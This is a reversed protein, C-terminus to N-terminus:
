FIAQGKNNISIKNVDMRKFYNMTEPHCTFVIVQRKKAFEYLIGATKEARKPDFNVLVEDVIVPLPEAKKEYEEIFGLRLSVLLQERTGRSLQHIKKVAGRGDFVSVDREGLTVIIKKYRGGTIRSFYTISNKIVEPQREREYRGKVEALLKLAVKGALWSKYNDNLKQRESELGTMIEALESEGEIRSVENRKEGLETNKSNLEGSKMNIKEDLEVTQMEIDEKSNVKLFEIVKESRNLGIVTEINAVANRRAEILKIVKDEEEYKKRFDKTDTADVSKLLEKLKRDIAASESIARKLEKARVALNDKMKEKNGSQEQASQFENVIHNVILETNDEPEYYTLKDKLASVEVEFEKIFPIRQEAQKRRLEDRDNLTRKVQNIIRFIELVSDPTLDNELNLDTLYSKYNKDLEKEKEDTKLLQQKIKDSSGEKQLFRKGAVLILAILLFTIGFIFSASLFLAISVISCIISFIIAASNVNIGSGKIQLTKQQAELEKRFSKLEEFKEKFDIIRDNHAILDSFENISGETWKTGIRDLEQKILKNLNEIKGNDDKMDDRALTYKGLNAKLYEVKEANALLESNFSVTKIEEELEEIGKEEADGKKLVKIKEDLEQKKRETDKLQEMGDGPYNRLVPLAALENDYHVINVFSDYCRLYNHLRNSEAQYKKLEEIINKIDAELQKIALNLQRYRHLNDQIEGILEKRKEIEKLILPVVQKGRGRRTYIDDVQKQIGAEVESISINRLGLSVSFIRDEVGSASLRSLDALEDLSFAYVNEFIERTANGLLRSWLDQDESAANGYLMRISGGSSGATREFTVDKSDSLLAIIRGRHEGGNLPTMRQDTAKPYVFLTYRIFKFLTSKGAENNGLIINVGQQLSTLSFDNFIGFGDIHIEAFIM